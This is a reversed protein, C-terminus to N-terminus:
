LERKLCNEKKSCRLIIGNDSCFRSISYFKDLNKLEKKNVEKQIKKFAEHEYHNGYGYQFPLFLNVQSKLGFNIAIKASFYSNGNVKDFWEKAQVDITQIKAKM